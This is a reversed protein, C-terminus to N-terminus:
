DLAGLKRAAQMVQEVAMAPSYAVCAQGAWTDFFREQAATLTRRSPSLSGDKCELFLNVGRFGVALDPVGDGVAALSRVSAGIGELAKVIEAHNGDTRGRQGTQRM